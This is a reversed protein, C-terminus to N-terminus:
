GAFDPESDVSPPKWRGSSQMSLPVEPSMLLSQKFGEGITSIVNAM